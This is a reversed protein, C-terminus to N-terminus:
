NDAHFMGCWSFGICSSTNMVRNAKGKRLRGHEVLAGGHRLLAPDRVGRVGCWVVGRVVKKCRNKVLMRGGHRQLQAPRLMLGGCWVVSTFYSTIVVRDARDTRLRGQKILARGHGLLAPRHPVLQRDHLRVHRHTPHFTRPTEATQIRLPIPRASAAPRARPNPHDWDQSPRHNPAKAPMDAPM